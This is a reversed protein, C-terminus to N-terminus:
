LQISLIYFSSTSILDMWCQSINYTNFTVALIPLDMFHHKLTILFVMSSMKWDNWRTNLIVTQCLLYLLWMLCGTSCWHCSRFWDEDSISPFYFFYIFTQTLFIDINQTLEVKDVLLLICHSQIAIIRERHKQRERDPPPYWHSMHASMDPMTQTWATRHHYKM